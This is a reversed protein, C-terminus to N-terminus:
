FLRKSSVESTFTAIPLDTPTCVLARQQLHRLSQEMSVQV